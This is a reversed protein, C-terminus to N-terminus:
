VVIPTLPHRQELDSELLELLVHDPKRRLGDLLQALNRSYGCFNRGTDVIQGVLKVWRLKVCQTQYGGQLTEASFKRLVVQLDLKDVMVNRSLNRLIHGQAQKPDHLLSQLVDHLVASRRFSLYLQRTV